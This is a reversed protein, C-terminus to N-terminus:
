TETVIRYETRAIIDVYSRVSDRDKGKEAEVEEEVSMLHGDKARAPGVKAQKKRIQDPLRDYGALLHHERKDTDKHDSRTWGNRLRSEVWGDHEAEALLPLNEEIRRRIVTQDSKSWTKGKRPELRLGAMALVSGIRIAADRNDAQMFEALKDFEAYVSGPNAKLYYGHIWAAIKNYDLMAPM